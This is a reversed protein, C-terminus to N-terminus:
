YEKTEYSSVPGTSLLRLSAVWTGQEIWLKFYYVKNKETSFKTIRRILGTTGLISEPRESYLEHNGPKVNIVLPKTSSVSGVYLENLKVDFKDDIGQFSGDIEPYIVITSKGEPPIPATLSVKVTACGVVNLLMLGLLLKKM